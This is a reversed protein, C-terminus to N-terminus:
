HGAGRRPPRATAPGSMPTATRNATDPGAWAALGMLADTHAPAEAHGPQWALSLLSVVLVTAYALRMTTTM